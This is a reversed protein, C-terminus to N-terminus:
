VCFCSTSLQNGWPCNYKYLLVQGLSLIWYVTWLMEDNFLLTVKWSLFRVSHNGKSALIYGTIQHIIQLGIWYRSDFKLQHFKLAHQNWVWSLSARAVADISIQFYRIEISLFVKNKDCSSIQFKWFNRQSTPENWKSCTKHPQTTHHVLYKAPVIDNLNTARVTGNGAM